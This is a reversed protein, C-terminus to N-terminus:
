LTEINVPVSQRTMELDISTLRFPVFAIQDIGYKGVPGALGRFHTDQQVMVSVYRADM